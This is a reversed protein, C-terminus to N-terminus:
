KTEKVLATSAAGPLDPWIDYLLRMTLTDGIFTILLSLLYTVLVPTAAGAAGELGEMSGDPKVQVVSLAPAERKALTL